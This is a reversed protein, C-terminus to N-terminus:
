LAEQIELRVEGVLGGAIYINGADLAHGQENLEPHAVDIVVANYDKLFPTIDFRGPQGGFKVRGLETGNIHILGCSQPPEVVLWVREHPELNTPRNFNRGYRVVGLFDPGLTGSWDAPMKAESAPPLDDTAARFSGDAERVFRKVPEVRWPGRLRITHM